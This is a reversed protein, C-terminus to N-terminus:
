RVVKWEKAFSKRSFLRSLGEMLYLYSVGWYGMQRFRRPSHNVELHSLFKVKGKRQVRYFLDCDEGAVLETNYGGIAEFATRRVLQCEGKALCWGVPISWRITTNMLWHYFMDSRTREAPYIRIPATAASVAVNEFQAIVETYFQEPRPLRVDADTHFLIDGTAAAAGANRGIAINQKGEAQVLKVRDGYPQAFRRVAWDTGDTSHADSVIIELDFRDFWLAYQQLTSEITKIENRTPIIVSIKRNM